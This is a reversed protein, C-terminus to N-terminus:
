TKSSQHHKAANESGKVPEVRCMHEIILKDNRLNQPVFEDGRKYFKGAYKFSQKVRYVVENM